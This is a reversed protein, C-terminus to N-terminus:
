LRIGTDCPLVERREKTVRDVGGASGQEYRCLDTQGPAVELASKLHDPVINGARGKSSLRPFFCPPLPCVRTVRRLTQRGSRPSGPPPAREPAAAKVKPRTNADSIFGTRPIPEHVSWASGPKGLPRCWIADFDSSESQPTNVLRDDGNAGSSSTRLDEGAPSAAARDDSVSGALPFVSKIPSSNSDGSCAQVPQTPIDDTAIGSARADPAVGFSYRLCLAIGSRVPVPIVICPDTGGYDKSATPAATSAVPSVRGSDSGSTTASENSCGSSPRVLTSAPKPPLEPNPSQQCPVFPVLMYGGPGFVLRLPQRPGPGGITQQLTPAWLADVVAEIVLHLRVRHLDPFSGPGPLGLRSHWCVNSVNWVGVVILNYVNAESHAVSMNLTAKSCTDLKSLAREIRAVDFMEGFSDPGETVVLPRMSPQVAVNNLNALRETLTEETPPGHHPPIRHFHEANTVVGDVQRLLDRSPDWRTGLLVYRATNAVIQIETTSPFSM